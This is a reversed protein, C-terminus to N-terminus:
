RLRFALIKHFILLFTECISIPRYKGKKEKKIFIARFESLLPVLKYLDPFNLLYNFIEALKEIFNRRPKKIFKLHRPALGSSGCSKHPKLEDIQRCVEDATIPEFAQKFMIGSFNLKPL